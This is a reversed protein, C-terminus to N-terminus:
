KGKKLPRTGRCGPYKLCGLFTRKTKPNKREVMFGECVPCRPLHSVARYAERARETLTALFNKTRHTRKTRWVVKGSPRHYVIVRGADMGRGRTEGRAVSTFVRILLDPDKAPREVVVERVRPLEVLAFGLGIFHNIVEDAEFRKYTPM